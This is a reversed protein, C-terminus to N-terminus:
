WCHVANSIIWAAQWWNIICNCKCVFVCAYCSSNWNMWENMWEPSTLSLQKWLHGGRRDTRCVDIHPLLASTSHRFMKRSPVHGCWHQIALDGRGTRRCSFISALLAHHCDQSIVRCVHGFFHLHRSSMCCSFPPQQTRLHVELNHVHESWHINSIRRLCWNDLVSIVNETSTEVAYLFVPLHLYQLPVTYYRPFHQYNDCNLNRIWFFVTFKNVDVYLPLKSSQTCFAFRVPPLSSAIWHSRRQMWKKWLFHAWRLSVFTKLSRFNRTSCASDNACWNVIRWHSVILTQKVIM